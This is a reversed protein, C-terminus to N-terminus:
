LNQIIQFTVGEGEESSCEIDGHLKTKVINHVINLGLGIDGGARNTTFFPQFIKSFDKKLIGHGDDKYTMILSKEKKLIEITIIGNENDHYGHRISNIILNTFIQSYAGPFSLIEIDDDIKYEIEVGSKSIIHHLSSLIVPMYEKVNFVRKQENTQDTSIQKFSDVLMATKQLNLNVLRAIESSKKLYDDFDYQTMEKNAYRKKIEETIEILHTVGTLSIGTPTNMEHAIGGVLRGLSVIIESEFLHKQTKKLEETRDQVIEELHNKYQVLEEIHKHVEDELHEQYKYIKIHTKVRALLEEKQIPKIIYDVAGVSFAENKDESGTLATMFIVPIDKYINSQKLKRCMEFGSMGPMKVDLLIIDPPRYEIRKLATLASTAILVTYGKERLYNEAISINHPNDDVVLVKFDSNNEEM